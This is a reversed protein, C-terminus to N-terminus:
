SNGADGLYKHWLEVKRGLQDIFSRAERLEAILKIAVYPNFAEIFAAKDCDTQGHCSWHNGDSDHLAVGNFAYWPKNRAARALADLERLQKDTM